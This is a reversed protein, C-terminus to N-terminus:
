LVMFVGAPRHDEGLESERLLARVKDGAGDVSVIALPLCETRSSQYESIM